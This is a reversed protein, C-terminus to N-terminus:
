NASDETLIGKREMGWYDLLVGTMARVSRSAVREPDSTRIMAIEDLERGLAFLEKGVDKRGFYESLVATPMTEFAKKINTRIVSTNTDKVVGFQELLALSSNITAAIGAQGSEGYTFGAQLRESKEKAELFSLDRLLYDIGIAIFSLTRYFCRFAIDRRQARASIQEAFFRGQDIWYNVSDFNLGKILRGKCERLRWKWDGGLKGLTENSLLQAFEEESLRNKGTSTTGASKTLRQLFAGDLVTVGVEKGFNKVEERSDTTAVIARDISLSSQLGKTWFIREIAQPTRKNKVDVLATERAVSSARIYLWLDVDTVSYSEYEFPVGRTVFYGANRFYSGLLEELFAGKLAGKRAPPSM